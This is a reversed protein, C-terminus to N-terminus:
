PNGPRYDYLGRQRRNRMKYGYMRGDAESLAVDLSQKRCDECVICGISASIRYPKGSEMSAHEMAESFERARGAEDGKEYSGIGILFFEDGGSRVCFENKHAVSRLVNCVCKIGYDGEAHGYNDNVFKLGDMDVVSVFLAEGEAAGALIKRFKEYMGRRNYAGTMEDKVSLTQLREKSRIMELGTNIYRLWNRYVINLYFHDSFDRQLVAYGLLRGNFHVPSFYFLSAERGEEYLKPIMQETKFSVAEGEGYFKDEDVSTAAALIRMNDPYGEIREDEMDLWNEKLCLYFNRYPKVLYISNFISEMCEDATATGTFTEMAYSELLTGISIKGAFDSDAYDYTSTYLANRFRRIMYTPDTLCGCSAGPHFLHSTDQEMPLIEAGPDIISRIYDVAEAGMRDDAPEYSSITTQNMAGEDSADFGIVLVEEPVKVGHRKLREVLGIAMCDSACLVAEPRSIDGNVIQEALEEGCDYWFNGYVIHEPLVSLGYKGIEDLLINLRDEAVANDKQGTLICLKKKGHTEIAHKCMERLADENHNGILKTGELPLELACVPMDPYSAFRERFHKLLPDKDHDTLMSCDLIVGDLEDLNALEFINLEGKVYEAHPFSPHTSSAFVCLDYGYRECQHTIGEMIRHVHVVEPLAAFLAIRKRREM